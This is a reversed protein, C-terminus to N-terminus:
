AKIHAVFQLKRKGEIVKVEFANHYMFFVPNLVVDWKMLKHKAKIRIPLRLSSKM